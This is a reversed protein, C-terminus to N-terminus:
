ICGGVIINHVATVIDCLLTLCISCACPLSTSGADTVAVFLHWGAKLIMACSTTLSRLKPVLNSCGTEANCFMANQLPDSVCQATHLLLKGEQLGLAPTCEETHCHCGGCYAGPSGGKCCGQTRCSHHTQLTHAGAVHAGLKAGSNSQPEQVGIMVLELLSIACLM